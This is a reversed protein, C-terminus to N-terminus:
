FHENELLHGRTGVSVRCQLNYDEDLVTILEDINEVEFDSLYDTKIYGVEQLHELLTGEGISKVLKAKLNNKM